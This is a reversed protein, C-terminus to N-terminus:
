TSCVTVGTARCEYRQEHADYYRERPLYVAHGTPSVGPGVDCKDDRNRGDNKGGPNNVPAPLAELEDEPVYASNDHLRLMDQTSVTANVGDQLSWGADQYDLKPKARTPAPVPNPGNNPNQDIPPAPPIIVCNYSCGGSGTGTATRIGSGTGPGIRM